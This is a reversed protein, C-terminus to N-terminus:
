EPTTAGIPVVMEPGKSAPKSECISVSNPVEHNPHLGAESPYKAPPVSVCVASSITEYWHPTVSGRM